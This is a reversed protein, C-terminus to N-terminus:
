AHLFRSACILNVDLAAASMSLLHVIPQLGFTLQQLFVPRGASHYPRRGLNVTVALKVLATDLLLEGWARPTTQGIIVM